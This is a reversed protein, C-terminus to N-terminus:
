VLNLFLIRQSHEMHSEEPCMHYSFAWMVRDPQINLFVLSKERDWLVFSLHWPHVLWTPLWFSPCSLAVSGQSLSHAVACTIWEVFISMNLCWAFPSGCATRVAKSVSSHMVKEAPDGRHLKCLNGNPLLSKGSVRRKQTQLFLPAPM